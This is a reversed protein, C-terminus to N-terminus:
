APPRILAEIVCPEPTAVLLLAVKGRARYELSAVGRAAVERCVPSASVVAISDDGGSWGLLSALPFRGRLFIGAADGYVVRYSAQARPVILGAPNGRRRRLEELPGIGAADCSEGERTLRGAGEMAFEVSAEPALVRRCVESPPAFLRLVGAAGALTADIFGGREEARTVGFATGVGPIGMQYLARETNCSLSALWATAALCCVGPKRM